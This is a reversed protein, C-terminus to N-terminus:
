THFRSWIGNRIRSILVRTNSRASHTEPLFPVRAEDRRGAVAVLRYHPQQEFVLGLDDRRM